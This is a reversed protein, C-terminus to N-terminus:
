DLLRIIWAWAPDGFRGALAGCTCAVVLTRIAHWVFQDSWVDLCLFNVCGGVLFGVTFQTWCWRRAQLASTLKM